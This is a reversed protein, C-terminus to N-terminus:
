EKWEDDLNLFDVPFTFNGVKVKINELMRSACAYSNDFFYLFWRILKIGEFALAMYISLPLINVNPGHDVMVKFFTVGGMLRQIKYSGSDEVKPPLQNLKREKIAKESSYDDFERKRVMYKRDFAVCRSAYLWVGSYTSDVLGWLADQIWGGSAKKISNYKMIRLNVKTGSWFKIQQKLRGVTNAM